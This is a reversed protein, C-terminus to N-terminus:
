PQSNYKSAVKRWEQVFSCVYWQWTIRTLMLEPRGLFAQLVQLAWFTLPEIGYSIRDILTLNFLGLDAACSLSWAALPAQSEFVTAYVLGLCTRPFTPHRLMYELRSKRLISM